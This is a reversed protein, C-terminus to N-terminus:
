SVANVIISGAGNQYVKNMLNKVVSESSPTFIFRVCKNSNLDTYETACISAKTNDGIGLETLHVDAQLMSLTFYGTYGYYTTPVELQITKYQPEAPKSESPKSEAPKQSEEPKSPTTPTTSSTEAPKTIPAPKSEVKSSDSVTSTVESTSATSNVNDNNESITSESNVTKSEPSVNVEIPNSDVINDKSYEDDSSTNNKTCGSLLLSIAVIAFILIKKM